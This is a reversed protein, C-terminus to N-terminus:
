DYVTMAGMPQQHLSAKIVGKVQKLISRHVQYLEM